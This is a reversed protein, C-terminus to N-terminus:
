VLNPLLGHLAMDEANWNCKRGMKRQEYLFLNLPILFLSNNYSFVSEICLCSEVSKLPKAKM